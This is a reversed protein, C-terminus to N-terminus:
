VEENDEDRKKRLDRLWHYLTATALGKLVLGGPLMMAIGASLLSNGVISAFASEVSESAAGGVAAAAVTEVSKKIELYDKKPLDGDVLSFITKQVLDGNKLTGDALEQELVARIAIYQTCTMKTKGNELNSITQKTVGIMDGFQEMTWGIINRISRLNEQLRRIKTERDSQSM